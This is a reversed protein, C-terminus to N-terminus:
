NLAKIFAIVEGSEKETLNLKEPSLTQNEVKYGLGAGGGKNYFDMVQELTTFVGNHMYPATRAAGRVTSIKFAHKFAEVKLINYRGMDTDIETKAITKPVGIVESENLSYQPPFVGNFLPMYHCTGCKAKGMFLNFGNIEEQNMVTKNGRMYQDFRTNLSVLSRVYSGIANMVEMTDIGARNKVPYADAFLRRYDKNQWLRETAMKMSGHMEDKNGVVTNAQDELSGARLDYFQSPQLAANILTPTNRKLPLNTGIVTNKVLGDTFAKDPQHCTQCSRDRGGSLIPDAFLVRGLAIKKESTYSVLGPAYANVNFADKDFLTKAGQNLLYNYTITQIKLKKELETISVTLPNGYQTIFKARDFSNFDPHQELYSCAASFQNNMKGADDDDGYLIIAQQVNRLATASEHMSKLTLPNDFGSIGLALVRFIEQKTADFVQWNLIDVFQFRRKYRDIGTQLLNLQNILEPKRKPDYKPFLLSEIVQLGAPEFIQGTMEIEQVPPGNVFRSNQPDFFEIAWEMKKYALRTDLFLRQAKKEDVSNSNVAALLNNRAQAFSDVQALLTQAIAKEPNPKLRKCSYFLYGSIAILIAAIISFKKM